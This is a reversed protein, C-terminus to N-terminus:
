SRAKNYSNALTRKKRLSIVGFLATFLAVIFGTLALFIGTGPKVAIKPDFTHEEENGKEKWVISYHWDLITYRSVTLSRITVFDSEPTEKFIHFLRKRKLKFSGVKPDTIDWTVTDGWHVETKENDSLILKGSVPNSGQIHIPHQGFSASLAFCLIFTVLISKFLYKM